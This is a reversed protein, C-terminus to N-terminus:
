AVEGGGDVIGSGGVLRVLRARGLGLLVPPLSPCGHLVAKFVLQRSPVCCHKNRGLRMQGLVLHLWVM